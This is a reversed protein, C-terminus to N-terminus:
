NGLESLALCSASPVCGILTENAYWMCFGFIPRRGQLGRSLMACKSKQSWCAGLQLGASVCREPPPLMKAATNNVAAEWECPLAYQM